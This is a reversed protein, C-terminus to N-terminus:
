TFGGQPAGPLRPALLKAQAAQRRKRHESLRLAFMDRHLTFRQHAPTSPAPPTSSPPSWASPDKVITKDSGNSEKGKGEKEQDAKEKEDKEKKKAEEKEKERKKRDEWEQKVKAIEQPSLGIKRAGAAGDSSEAVPSAFGPDTLHM